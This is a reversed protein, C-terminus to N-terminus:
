NYILLNEKFEHQFKDNETTLIQDDLNFTNLYLSCLIENGIAATVTSISKRM